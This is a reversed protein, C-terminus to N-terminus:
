NANENSSNDGPNSETLISNSKHLPYNLNNTCSLSSMGRCKKKRLSPSAPLRFFKYFSFTGREKLKRNSVNRFPPFVFINYKSSVESSLALLRFRRIYRSLSEEVVLPVKEHKAHTAVRTVGERGLLLPQPILELHIMLKMLLAGRNITM